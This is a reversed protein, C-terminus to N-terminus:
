PRKPPVEARKKWFIFISRFVFDAELVGEFEESGVKSGPNPYCEIQLNPNQYPSGFGLLISGEPLVGEFFLYFLLSFRRRIRSNTGFDSDGPPTSGQIPGPFQIFLVSPSHCFPNQSPNLQFASFLFIHRQVRATGEAPKTESQERPFPRKRRTQSQKKGEGRCERCNVCKLWQVCKLWYVSSSGTFAKKKTAKNKGEKKETNKKGKKPPDLSFVRKEVVSARTAM